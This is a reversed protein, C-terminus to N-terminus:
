KYGEYLKKFPGCMELAIRFIEEGMRPDELSVREPDVKFEKLPILWVCFDDIEKTPLGKFDYRYDSKKELFWGKPKQFTVGNPM